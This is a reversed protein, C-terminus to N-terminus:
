KCYSLMNSLSQVIGTMNAPKVLYDTTGKAICRAKDAASDSTTFIIKPINKFEPQKSLAELTQLGDLVPMNLDLVILCPRVNAPLHNLYDLAQQGNDTIHLTHESSLRGLALTILEKDDEDDEALLIVPTHNERNHM